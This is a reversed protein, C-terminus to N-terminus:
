QSSADRVSRRDRHVIQTKDLLCSTEKLRRASSSGCLQEFSMTSRGRAPAVDARTNARFERVDSSASDASSQDIRNSLFLCCAVPLRCGAMCIPDRCGSRSNTRKCSSREGFRRVPIPFQRNGTAQQRIGVSGAVLALQWHECRRLSYLGDCFEEASSALFGGRKEARRNEDVFLPSAAARSGTASAGVM